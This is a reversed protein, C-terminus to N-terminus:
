SAPYFLMSIPILVVERPVDVDYKSISLYISQYISRYISLNISLNLSLYICVYACVCIYIYIYMNDQHDAMLSVFLINSIVESSQVTKSQPWGAVTM